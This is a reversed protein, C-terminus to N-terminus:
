PYPETASCKGLLTKVWNKTVVEWGCAPFFFLFSHPFFFGSVQLEWLAVFSVKTKLVIVVQLYSLISVTQSCCWRPVFCFIKVSFFWSDCLKPFLPKQSRLCWLWHAIIKFRQPVHVWNFNEVLDFEHRTTSYLGWSACLAYQCFYCYLSEELWNICFSTTILDCQCVSPSSVYSSGPSAGLVVDFFGM